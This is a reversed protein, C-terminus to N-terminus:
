QFIILKALCGVVSLCVRGVVWLGHVDCHTTFSVALLAFASWALLTEDIANHGENKNESNHVLLLFLTKCVLGLREVLEIDGHLRNALSAPAPAAYLARLLLVM